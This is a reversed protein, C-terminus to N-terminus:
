CKGKMTAAGGRRGNNNQKATVARLNSRSNNATNGDRHDVQKGAMKKEGLERTMARHAANRQAREKVREPKEILREHKYDRAM